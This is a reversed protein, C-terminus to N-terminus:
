IGIAGRIDRTPASLGGRALELCKYRAADIGHNWNDEPEPLMKGNKDKKWSYSYFEKQLNTSGPTLFIKKSLM